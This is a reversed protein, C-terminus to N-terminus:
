KSGAEKETGHGEGPGHNHGAHPDKEATKHVEGPGHDHGAHDDKKAKKGCGGWLLAAALLPAIKIIIKTKM